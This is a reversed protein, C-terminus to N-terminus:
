VELAYVELVQDEEMRVGGYAARYYLSLMYHNDPMESLRSVPSLAKSFIAARNATFVINRRATMPAITDGGTGVDGNASDFTIPDSNFPLLETRVFKFNMFTDIRGEALAKVTAYDSNTVETTNLLSIIQDASCVWILMEDDAASEREMFYQRAKLLTDLTLVSGTAAPTTEDFAALRNEDALNVFSEGKKGQRAASLLADVAVRDMQRAQAMAFARAYEGSANIKIKVRDDVEISERNYYYQWDVARRTHTLDTWAAFERRGTKMSTEISSLRDFYKSESNQTEQRLWKAVRSHRQQSLHMVASGFEDVYAQDITDTM